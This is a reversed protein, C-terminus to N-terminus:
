LVRTRSRALQKVNCLYWGQLSGGVTRLIRIGEVYSATSYSVHLLESHSCTHTDSKPDRKPEMWIGIPTCIQRSM